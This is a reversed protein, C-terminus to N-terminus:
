GERWIEWCLVNRASDVYLPEGLSLSLRGFAMQRVNCCVSMEGKWVSGLSTRRGRGGTEPGEGQRRGQKTKDGSNETNSEDCQRGHDAKLPNLRLSTGYCKKYIVM